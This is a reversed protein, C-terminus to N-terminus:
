RSAPPSEPLAWFERALHLLARGAPNPPEPELTTVSVIWRDTRGGIAIGALAPQSAAVAEPVVAIGLGARVLDLLTTVDNVEFPVRRAVGAARFIEDVVIRSGWAVPFDVFEEGALDDLRIPPAAARHAALRHRPGYVLVMPSSFVPMLAVGRRPASSTFALDLRSEAVQAMLESSSAQTLRLEIGPFREHFRALFGSLDIAALAQMVGVTLSGRQLGAVAAVAGAAARAAALTRRAEVLLVEGARTLEVRRTTRLLLPSGLEAELSRVTSSLGSQAVHLRRAARTFHQEEAVAVFYELQRLEM